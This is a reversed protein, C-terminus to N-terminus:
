IKRGLDSAVFYIADVQALTKEGKWWEVDDLIIEILWMLARQVSCAERIPMAPGTRQSREHM